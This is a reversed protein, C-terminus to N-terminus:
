TSLLLVSPTTYTHHVYLLENKENIQMMNHVVNLDDNAFWRATDVRHLYDDLMTFGVTYLCGKNTRHREIRICSID